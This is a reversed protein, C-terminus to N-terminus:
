AAYLLRGERVVTSPFSAKLHLRRNFESELMLLVDAAAGTGRLAKYARDFDASTLSASEPLVLLLDLDSDAGAEGRAASGFLYIRTPACVSVLRAVLDDPVNPPKAATQM